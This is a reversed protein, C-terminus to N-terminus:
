SRTLANGSLRLTTITITNEFLSFCISCKIFFTIKDVNSCLFLEEQLVEVEALLEGPLKNVVWVKGVHTGLGHRGKKSLQHVM